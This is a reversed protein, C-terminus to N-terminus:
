SIVSSFPLTTVSAPSGDITVQTGPEAAEKRIYGLAVLKEGEAVPIARVSTVEGVEKGDREIKSGAGPAGNEVMFGTFTRHVNGRARIREVIEQGIYCGKTFSLAQMQGTEQPLEKDRIDTGFKPIGAFVRFTELAETGVPTAGAELLANWVAPANEASVWLEYTEFNQDAMRTISLGIDRWTIDELQMPELQPVAIGAKELTERSNPGQVGIATPKEGIDTLQVDDMIIYRGLLKLLNEAQSQATGVILHDGKNYVYLDGQIRGQPTLVFNYVGRGVRLDRVNNTIMGNLWRVRDKGTVAIKARWGLDYAGCGTLLAQFESRVDSFVLATEAGSYEGMHAHAASLMQYLATRAM